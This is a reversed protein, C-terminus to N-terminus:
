RAKKLGKLKRIKAVWIDQLHQMGADSDSYFGFRTGTEDDAGCAIMFSTFRDYGNVGFGEGKFFREEFVNGAVCTNFGNINFDSINIRKLWKKRGFTLDLWKIGREVADLYKKPIPKVKKM